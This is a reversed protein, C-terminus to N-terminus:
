QHRLSPTGNGPRAPGVWQALTTGLLKIDFPKSVYDDMGAALCQERDEPMAAATIAIIPIRQGPAERRRIEATAQFGDMLPMHCDMLVAAYSGRAVAEMAEIGNGVVDVQYGLRTIVGEAVLQNVPNDEVVLVRGLLGEVKPAITANPGPPALIPLDPAMLRMLRDYLESGRVPKNLWERVGAQQVAALDLNFTSTLMIMKTHQLRADRSISQALQLGDTTPMCMDLVAIDYPRGEAARQRMQVLASEANEAAEPQLRWSTLQSTLILRNTANDDVVLVRMGPLLDYTLGVALDGPARTAAALPVEFSFSSGVGLTSTLHIRGQMAEVLRLSIALGLGTGGFRRTTSADAQSFSEFLGAQDHDAVGIGTDTVEFRMM